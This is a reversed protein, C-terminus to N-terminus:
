VLGSCCAESVLRRGAVYNMTRDTEAKRGLFDLTYVNPLSADSLYLVDTQFMRLFNGMSDLLSQIM